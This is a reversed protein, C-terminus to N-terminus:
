EDELRINNEMDGGTLFDYLDITAVVENNRIIRIDRFSGNAGPGGSLYLANFATALSPLTYTGPMYSEGTITIKISRVDGLSVHAFTNPDPSTLGSYITSLRSIILSTAEEITLGNVHINGLNELQIYGGPRVTVRYSQQSAGWIDILIEDGSALIYNKPTPINLSPEFTLGETRFLDRGFMGVEVGPESPRDPSPTEAAAEREARQQDASAEDATQLEEIRGRLKQIESYPMGRNIAEAELEAESLGRSEAERVFQRIQSDSLEDVKVESLDTTLDFSQTSGTFPTALM